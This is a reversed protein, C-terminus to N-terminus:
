ATESYFLFFSNWSFIKTETNNKTTILETYGVNEECIDASCFFYSRLPPLYIKKFTVIKEIGYLSCYFWGAAVGM